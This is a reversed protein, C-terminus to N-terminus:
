KPRRPQAQPNSAELTQPQASRPEGAAGPVPDGVAAVVIRTGARNMEDVLGRPPTADTILGRLDYWSLVGFSGVVGHKSSDAVIYTAGSNQAVRRKVDADDFNFDTVGAEADIGGCGIFAADFHMRELFLVTASGTVSWEGRRLRGPALIVEVNGTENLADAVLLSQTVVTGCFSDALAQAVAACTTGLDIFILQGSTVLRASAAGISRKPQTHLLARQRFPPESSQQRRISVAGGYIRRLEGQEELLLLDRRITEASVRLQRALEVTTVSAQDAIRAKIHQQRDRALM